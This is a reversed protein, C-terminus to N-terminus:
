GSNRRTTRRVDHGRNRMKRGRAFDGRLDAAFCNRGDLDRAGMEIADLAEIRLQVGKDIVLGFGNERLRVTGLFRDHSSFIDAGEM